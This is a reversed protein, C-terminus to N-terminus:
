FAHKVDFLMYYYYHVKRIAKVHVFHEACWQGSYSFFVVCILHEPVFIHQQKFCLFPLAIFVNSM